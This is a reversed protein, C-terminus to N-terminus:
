LHAPTKRGSLFATASAPASSRMTCWRSMPSGRAWCRMWAIASFNAIFQTMAAPSLREGYVRRAAGAMDFNILTGYCDFTIYKPRFQPM